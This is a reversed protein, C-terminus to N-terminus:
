WKYTEGELTSKIKEVETKCGQIKKEVHKNMAEEISSHAGINPRLGNIAANMKDLFDRKKSNFEVESTCQKLVEKIDKLNEINSFAGALTECDERLNHSAGYNCRGG